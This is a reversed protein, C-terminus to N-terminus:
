YPIFHRLPLIVIFSLFGRLFSNNKSANLSGATQRAKKSFRKSLSNLVQSTCCPGYWMLFKDVLIKLGGKSSTLCNLSLDALSESSYDDYRDPGNSKFKGFVNLSLPSVNM